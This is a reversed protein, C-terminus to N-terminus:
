HALRDLVFSPSFSFLRRDHMQKTLLCAVDVDLSPDSHKSILSCKRSCYQWEVSLAVVLVSARIIRMCSVRLSGHSTVFDHICAM